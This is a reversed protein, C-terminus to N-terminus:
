IIQTVMCAGILLQRPSCGLFNAIKQQTKGNNQLLIILVRERVHSLESEKLANQLRSVQESTLFKKVPLPM